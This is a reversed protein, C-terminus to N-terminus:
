SKESHQAAASHRHQCYLVVGPEMTHASLIRLAVSHMGLCNTLGSLHSRDVADCLPHTEALWGSGRSIVVRFFEMAITDGTLGM